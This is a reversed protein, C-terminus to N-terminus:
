NYIPHKSNIKSSSNLLYILLINHSVNEPLASPVNFLKILANLNMNPEVSFTKLTPLSLWLPTYKTDFDVNQHNLPLLVKIGNIM